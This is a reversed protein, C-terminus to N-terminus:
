GRLKQDNNKEYRDALSEGPYMFFDIKRGRLKMRRTNADIDKMCCPQQTLAQKQNSTGGAQEMNEWEEVCM